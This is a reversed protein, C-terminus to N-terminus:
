TGQGDHQVLHKLPFFLGLFISAAPPAVVLFTVMFIWVAAIDNIHWGGLHEGIWSLSRMLLELSIYMSFLMGIVRWGLAYRQGLPISKLNILVSM